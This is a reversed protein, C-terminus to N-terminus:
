KLLKAYEKLIEVIENARVFEDNTEISEIEENIISEIRHNTEM